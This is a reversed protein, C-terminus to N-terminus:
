RQKCRLPGFQVRSLVSNSCQPPSSRRLLTEVSGGADVPDPPSSLGARTKGKLVGSTQIVHWLEMGDYCLLVASGVSCGM